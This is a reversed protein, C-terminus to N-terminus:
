FGEAGELQYHAFLKGQWSDQLSQHRLFACWFGHCRWCVRAVQCFEGEALCFYWLCLRRSAAPLYCWWFWGFGGPPQYVEAASTGVSRAEELRKTLLDIQASLARSASREAEVQKHLRENEDNGKELRGLLLEEAAKSGSVDKELATVQKKLDEVAQQAVRLDAAEQAFQKKEDEVRDLEKQLAEIAEDQKIVEVSAREELAETM